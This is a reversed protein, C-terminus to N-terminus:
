AYPNFLFCWSRMKVFDAKYDGKSIEKGAEFCINPIQLIQAEQTLVCFLSDMGLFTGSSFDDKLMSNVLTCKLFARLCSISAQLVLVMSQHFIILLLFPSFFWPTTNVCDELSSCPADFNQNTRRSDCVKDININFKMHWLRFACIYDVRWIDFLVPKCPSLM